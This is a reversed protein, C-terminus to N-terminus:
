TGPSSQADAEDAALVAWCLYILAGALRPPDFHRFCESDVVEPDEQAGHHDVDHLAAEHTEFRTHGALLVVDIDRDLVHAVEANRDRDEPGDPERDHEAGRLRTQQTTVEEEAARIERFPCGAIGDEEEELGHEAAGGDGDDGACDGFTQFEVAVEDNGQHGRAEDIGHDSMPTPVAELRTFEGSPESAHPEDIERTARDHVTDPTPDRECPNEDDTGPGAAEGFFSNRTTEVGVIKGKRHQSCQEQPEPPEPEIAAADKLEACENRDNEFIGQDGARRTNDGRDGEADGQGPLHVDEVDDVAGQAAQDGDGRATVRHGEGFRREDPRAAGTDHHEDVDQQLPVLDVVHHAGDRNVEPRSDPPCERDREKGVRLDEAGSERGVLLEDRLDDSDSGHTGKDEDGCVRKKPDDIADPRQPNRPNGLFEPAIDGVM